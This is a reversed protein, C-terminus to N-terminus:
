NKTVRMFSSTLQVNLDMQAQCIIRPITISVHNSFLKIYISARSLKKGLVQYLWRKTTKRTEFLKDADSLGRVYELFRCFLQADFFHTDGSALELGWYSLKRKQVSMERVGM